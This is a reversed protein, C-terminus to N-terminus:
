IIVSLNVKSVLERPFSIEKGNVSDNIILAQDDRGVLIGTYKKSGNLGKYLSVDVSEGIYRAFHADTLLPRDMGPSSVILYYAAEITDKADLEASLFRSVKECDDTSIGDPTEIFVRLEFDSGVKVYELNWLEYGNDDLFPLLIEKVSVTVGSSAVNVDKCFCLAPFGSEICYRILIINGCKKVIDLLLYLRIGQIILALRLRRM